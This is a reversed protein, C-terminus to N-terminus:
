LRRSLLNALREVLEDSIETDGFAITEVSGVRNGVRVYVIAGSIAGFPSDGGASAVFTDDGFRPYDLPGLRVTTENAEYQRCSEVTTQTLDLFDKAADEDAFRAVTNTIFPGADGLTFAASAVEVPEIVSRPIRGHCVDDAGPDHAQAAWGRPLDALTLLAEAVPRTGEEEVVEPVEEPVTRAPPPAADRLQVYGLYLVGVVAALLLARVGVRVAPPAVGPRRVVREGSRAVRGPAPADGRAAAPRTRAGAGPGPRPEPRAGPRPQPRRAGGRQPPRPETARAPTPRRVPAVGPRPDPRASSPPGLRRGPVPASQRPVSPAAEPGREVVIAPVAETDRERGSAARPAPTEARLAPTEARAAATRATAREGADPPAPMTDDTWESGDWWRLTGPDEQQRYWGAPTADDDKGAL